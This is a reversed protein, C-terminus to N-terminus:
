LSLLQDTPQIKYSFSPSLAPGDKQQIGIILINDNMFHQIVDQFSCGEMHEPVPFAHVKLHIDAEQFFPDALQSKILFHQLMATKLLDATSIIQNAGAREANKRQKETLIEVVCYVSPNLGKVALLTLISQMDAAAENKHQNATIFVIDAEEINANKLTSDDAPHGRIFHINEMLPGEQLTEDILVITRGPNASQLTRMLKNSKENWGVLIMHGRGRYNVKGEAYRQQKSFAATAMTAFYATVFAAGLLILLMSVVKGAPTKPVSDGYGVTSVTILAWWIGDFVNSFQEPEVLSILQGFIIILLLIIIAIRTYIPWRLWAIFVRNSKM